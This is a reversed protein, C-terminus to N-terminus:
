EFTDVSTTLTGDGNDVVTCEYNARVNAGFSNEADVTGTVTWTGGGRASSNFDATAPAKLLREIRAECQAIAEYQNDSEYDDGEGASSVLNVCGVFLFLVVAIGGVTVLLRGFVTLEPKAPRDNQKAEPAVSRSAGTWKSGDWEREVPQGGQDPYWGPQMTM